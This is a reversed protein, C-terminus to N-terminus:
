KTVDHGVKTSKENPKLKHIIKNLSHDITSITFKPEIRLSNFTKGPMTPRSTIFVSPVTLTRSEFRVPGTKKELPIFETGFLITSKNNTQKNQQSLQWMNSNKKSNEIITAKLTQNVQATKCFCLKSAIKSASKKLTKKM